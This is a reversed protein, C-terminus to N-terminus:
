LMFWYVIALLVIWCILALLLNQINFPSHKMFAKYNKESFDELTFEFKVSVIDCDDQSATKTTNQFVVRSGTSCYPLFYQVHYTSLCRESNKPIHLTKGNRLTVTKGRLDLDELFYSM